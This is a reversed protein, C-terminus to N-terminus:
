LTEKIEKVSDQYKRLTESWTMRAVKAKDKQQDKRCVAYGIVVGIVIGLLFLVMTLPTMM